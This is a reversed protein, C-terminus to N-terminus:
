VELEEVTQSVQKTQAPVPSEVANNNSQARKGGSGNIFKVNSANIEFNAAPTGDTKTWVAPGGNSDPKLRGEVFVPDGKHLYNAVAEGSKGWVSVRFWVTEEVMEGNYEYKRNTAVNMNCVATGTATYRLEPDMGLNGLITVNHFM